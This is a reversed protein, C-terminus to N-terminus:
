DVKEMEKERVREETLAGWHRRETIVYERWLFGAGVVGGPGLVITAVAMVLLVTFWNQTVMGAVKADWTFYLLWLYTSGIAILYSHSLIDTPYTSALTTHFRQPLLIQGLSDASTSTLLAHLWVITGAATPIGVTYKITWVDRRPAHLKDQDTSDKWLKSIALQALSHTIPFLQWLQLWLQRQDKAPLFRSQLLPLYYVVLLSPLIARTFNMKTLRMDTAKFTDIPTLVWHLFYYLPAAM